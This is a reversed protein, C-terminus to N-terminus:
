RIFLESNMEGRYDGTTYKAPFSLFSGEIFCNGTGGAVVMFREGDGPPVQLSYTHSTVAQTSDVWGSWTTDWGPPSCTKDMYVVMRNEERHTKLNM